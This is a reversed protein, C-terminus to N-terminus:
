VSLTEDGLGNEQVHVRPASVQASSVAAMGAKRWEEDRLRVM